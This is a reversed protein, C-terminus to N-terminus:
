FCCNLLLHKKFLFLWFIIKFKLHSLKLNLNINQQNNHYFKCEEKKNERKKKDKIWEDEIKKFEDEELTKKKYNQQLAWVDKVTLFSIEPRLLQTIEKGITTYNFLTATITEVDDKYLPYPYTSLIEFPHIQHEYCFKFLIDENPIDIEETELNPNESNQIYKKKFDHYEKYEQYIEEETINNFKLKIINKAIQKSKKYTEKIKVETIKDFKKQLKIQLYEDCIEEISEKNIPKYSIGPLPYKPKNTEIYDYYYKKLSDGCLREHKNNVFVYLNNEVQIIQPDRFFAQNIGIARNVIGLYTIIKQKRDQLKMLDRYFEKKLDPQSGSSPNIKRGVFSLKNTAEWEYNVPSENIEELITTLAPNSVSYISKSDLSSCFIYLKNDTLKVNIERNWNILNIDTLLQQPLTSAKENESEIQQKRNNITKKIRELVKENKYEIYTIQSKEKVQQGIHSDAITKAHLVVYLSDNNQFLNYKKNYYYFKIGLDELTTELQSGTLIKEGITIYFYKGKSTSHYQTIGLEHIYGVAYQNNQEAEM